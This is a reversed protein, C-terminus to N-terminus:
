CSKVDEELTHTHTHTKKLAIVFVCPRSIGPMSNLHSARVNLMEIEVQLFGAPGAPVAPM